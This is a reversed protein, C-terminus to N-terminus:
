ALLGPKNGPKKYPPVNDFNPFSGPGAGPSLRGRFDPASARPTENASKIPPATAKGRTRDASRSAAAEALVATAVRAKAAAVASTAGAGDAAGV